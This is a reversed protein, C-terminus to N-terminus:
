AAARGLPASVPDADAKRAREVQFVFWAFSALGVALAYADMDKKLLTDYLGHLTMPVALIRLLTLAYDGSDHSSRISEQRRWLTIGISATWTAHLVVCSLFRVLYIGAPSIGNYYNASYMIGESVGFGVGSALGWACAGRWGLRPDLRFHVILPLAKCLEECLGVGFTFGMFSLLLNSDPDNASAYSFGIFKAVYFLLVVINGGRMWVGQTAAAVYQFGLLLLIGLTGTFLGILLLQGPRKREAPFLGAIFAWFALATLAGYAWHRLTRRPLHADEDLRGGPLAALLEDLDAEENGKFVQQVRSVVEPGAKGMMKKFRDPVSEGDRTLLSFGLPILALALALYLFERPSGGSTPATSTASARSM